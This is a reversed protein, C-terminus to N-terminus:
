DCSQDPVSWALAAAYEAPSELSSLQWIQDVVSVGDSVGDKVCTVAFSRADLFFGSGRAKLLAEKLTWCQFFAKTLLTPELSNLHEFEDPHFYRRALGLADVDSRIAEIDVGLEFRESVAVVAFESSHSLNFFPGGSSLAPKGSPGYTFAIAGPESSIRRALERRLWTRIKVYDRAQTPNLFRQSRLQEDESLWAPDLSDDERLTPLHLLTIDIGEPGRM